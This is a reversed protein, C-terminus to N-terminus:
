KLRRDVARKLLKEIEKKYSKVVKILKKWGRAGHFKAQDDGHVYKAYSAKNGIKAQMKSVLTKTYWKKGLTESSRIVRGSSFVRGQGREYWGGPRPRNASTAPPYEGAEDQMEELIIPFIEKFVEKAQVKSLKKQLKDIGKIQIETQM